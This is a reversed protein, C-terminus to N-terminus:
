SFPSLTDQFVQPGKNAHKSKENLRSQGEGVFPLYSVFLRGAVMVVRRQGPREDLGVGRLGPGMMAVVIWRGAADTRCQGSQAADNMAVYTNQM